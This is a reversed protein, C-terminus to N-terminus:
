LGSGSLGMLKAALEREEPSVDSGGLPQPQSSLGPVLEGGYNERVYVKLVEPLTGGGLERISAALPGNAKLQAVVLPGADSNLLQDFTIQGGQAEIIARAPPLPERSQLNELEANQYDALAQDRAGMSRIYDGQGDDWKMQQFRRDADAIQGRLDASYNNSAASISASKVGQDSAYKSADTTLKTRTLNNQLETQDAPSFSVGGPNFGAVFSGAGLGNALGYERFADQAERSRDTGTAGGYLDIISKAMQPDAGSSAASRLVELVTPNETIPSGGLLSDLGGFAKNTMPADPIPPSAPATPQPAMGGTSLASKLIDAQKASQQDERDFGFQKMSREYEYQKKLEELSQKNKMRAMGYQFLENLGDNNAPVYIVSM